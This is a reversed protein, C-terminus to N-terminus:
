KAPWPTCRDKELFREMERIKWVVKILRKVQFRPLLYSKKKLAQVARHKLLETLKILIMNVLPHTGEKVQFVRSVKHIITRKLHTLYRLNQNNFKRLTKSLTFRNRLISILARHNSLWRRSIQPLKNYNYKSM